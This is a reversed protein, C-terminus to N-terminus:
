QKESWASVFTKGEPAPLDREKTWAAMLPLRRLSGSKGGVAHAVAAFAGMVKRFLRPRKALFVWLRLGWRRLFPTKADSFHQARHRRLLAVLPINMPCVDECRGCFTSGFSLSESVGSKKLCPALVAGMPGPYVRGYAHGGISKYVPCENLCAACRICRLMDRFDGGLMRSRGNDLLVVHFEGPGDLDNERRPGTFFTTYASLEQGTASRALLRLITTADELTPVVKEISALAIHVKPLTMTLDGNGENTVILATGTEAVLINAGTIGVDAELFRRRLVHRAEEALDRAEKLHRDESLEPHQEMFTEAVQEKSLHVAPVIIHSPTEHRLQIIYEGLDTEVPEIGNEELYDNLAIEEGIMSKGKTVTKADAKKCIALIIDRAEASDRAWHVHGGNKQVQAEFKELYSDLNDLTHNKIKEAAACLREFEPLRSLTQRRKEPFGGSLVGLAKQLSEDSLAKRAAYDFSPTEGTM